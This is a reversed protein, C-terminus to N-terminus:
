LERKILRLDDDIAPMSLQLYKETRACDLGAYVPRRAGRPYNESKVPEILSQDLGFYGAIRTGLEYRSIFEKGGLHFIGTAAKRILHMILAACSIAGIPNSIQDSIAKIKKNASLNDYVFRFFNRKVTRDFLTNVRVILNESSAELTLHEAELKHQGYINVPRPQYDPGPPSTGRDEDDSFIYDTSIQVLKTEPFSEILNRVAVVNIGYSLDINRECRDVDALAASNIIINPNIKKALKKVSEFDSLDGSYVNSGEPRDPRHHYHLITEFNKPASIGLRKGLLGGAGTL